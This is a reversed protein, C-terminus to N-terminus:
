CQKSVGPCPVEKRFVCQWYICNFDQIHYDIFVERKIVMSTLRLGKQFVRCSGYIRAFIKGLLLLLYFVLCQSQPGLSEWWRANIVLKVCDRWTTMWTQDFSKAQCGLRRRSLVRFVRMLLRSFETAGPLSHSYEYWSAPTIWVPMAREQCACLFCCGQM